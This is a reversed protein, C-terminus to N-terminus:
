AEYSSTKELAIYYEVQETEHEWHSILKSSISVTYDGPIVKLNAILFQLDFQASLDSQDKLTISYSNATTNKPDIVSLTIDRGERKISVVTHGLASAAKRIAALTESNIKVTVDPPPMNIKKQPFTLISEDAFRYTVKSKGSSLIVASDEFELTPNELLSYAGLFENLDYIGFDKDFKEDITAFALINKAESITSVTNGARVLLNKQISSFNKLINLTNTTLTNM